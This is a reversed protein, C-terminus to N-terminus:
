IHILSLAHLSSADIVANVRAANRVFKARSAFRLTSLTETVVADAPSACVVLATKCNGGLSQQLLRTLVSDRFPVHAPASRKGPRKQTLADIVNGLALLSTNIKKAEALAAGTAGSRGVDESGALDCLTLTATTTAAAHVRREVQTEISAVSRKRWSEIDADFGDIPKKAGGAAGDGRAGAGAGAGGGAAAGGPAAESESHHVEVFLRCVAHSRSSQRNMKTAAVKLNKGAQALTELCATASACAVERAGQVYVGHAKDERLQLKAPAAAGVPPPGDADAEGLLDHVNEMYVQVFQVSVKFQKCHMHALESYLERVMRHAVGEHPTDLRAMEGITYTKGSGTQGYAFLTGNYGACVSEVLPKGITQLLSANDEREDCVREFDFRQTDQAPAAGSAGRASAVTICNLVPDVQVLSGREGRGEGLPRVRVFVRICSSGSAGDSLEERMAKKRTVQRTLTRQLIAAAAADSAVVM